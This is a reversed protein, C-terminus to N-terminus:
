TCNWPMDPEAPSCVRYHILSTQKPHHLLDDMHMSYINGEKYQLMTGSLQNLHRYYLALDLRPWNHWDKNAGHKVGLVCNLCLWLEFGAAKEEPFKLQCLDLGTFGGHPHCLSHAWGLSQSCCFLLSNSLSM